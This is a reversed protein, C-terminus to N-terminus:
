RRNKLKHRTEHLWRQDLEFQQRSHHFLKARQSRKRAAILLVMGALMHLAAVTATAPLPDGGFWADTALRCALFTLLTYGTIIFATGVGTILSITRLKQGAEAAEIKVLAGRARAYDLGSGLAAKAADRIGRHDNDEQSM